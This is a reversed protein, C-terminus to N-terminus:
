HLSLFFTCVFFLASGNCDYLYVNMYRIPFSNKNSFTFITKKTPALARLHAISFVTCFLSLICINVRSLWDFRKIHIRQSSMRGNVKETRVLHFPVANSKSEHMRRRFPRVFLFYDFRLGRGVVRVGGDFNCFQKGFTLRMANCNECFNFWATGDVSRGLSAMKRWLLQFYNECFWKEDSRRKTWSVKENKGFDFRVIKLETASQIWCCNLWNSVTEVICHM